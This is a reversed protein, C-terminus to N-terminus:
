KKYQDSYHDQRMHLPAAYRNLFHRHVTNMNGRCGGVGGHCFYNTHVSGNCPMFAARYRQVVAVPVILYASNVKIGYRHMKMIYVINGASVVVVGIQAHGDRESAPSARGGRSLM